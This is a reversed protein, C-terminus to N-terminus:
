AVGFIKSEIDDESPLEGANIIVVLIKSLMMRVEMSHELLQAATLKGGHVAKSRVDYLKKVKHYMKKREAGPPEILCAIFIALRFRLEASINFLGEIGSWLMAVNMRISAQHQHTTLAEVALSFGSSKSLIAFKNLNDSVWRLDESSVPLQTEDCKFKPVDEITSFLCERGEMAPIISWSASSVIPVLFESITKVRILAVVWLSLSCAVHIGANRVVLEHSVDRSYRSMISSCSASKSVLELENYEPPEQVEVISLDQHLFCFVEPEMRFGVLGFYFAQGAYAPSIRRLEARRKRAVYREAWRRLSEISEDKM